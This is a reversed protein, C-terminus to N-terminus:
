PKAVMVVAAAVLVVVFVASLVATQTCLRRFGAMPLDGAVAEQLRREGPWLVLEATVAVAAWVLLGLSIWGDSFSWDGQSMLILAAGFVPVLFLVRGGWNVGPRYYRRVSEPGPGSRQLVVAYAGAVGVAGLGILASLVHALLVIDYAADRRHAVSASGLLHITM